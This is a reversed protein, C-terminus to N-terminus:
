RNCDTTSKARDRRKGCYDIPTAVCRAAERERRRQEAGRDRKFAQWDERTVRYHVRESEAEPKTGAHVYRLGGALGDRWRQCWGRVVEPSVGIERACDRLTLWQDLIPQETATM